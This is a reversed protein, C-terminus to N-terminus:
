KSKPHHFKITKITQLFVLENKPNLNVGSIQLKIKNPGTGILSDFYVGITGNGPKFPIVLKAKYNEITVYKILSRRIKKLYNTDSTPPYKQMKDYWYLTGDNNIQVFEELDDSYLGYDFSVRDTSDIRIGGVYSDVGRIEIKEWGFPTEITFYGFDLQKSNRKESSTNCSFILIGTILICIIEVFFIRSYFASKM